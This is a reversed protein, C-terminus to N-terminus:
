EYIENVCSCILINHKESCCFSFLLEDLLHFIILLLYLKILSISIGASLLLVINFSIPKTKLLKVCTHNKKQKKKKM